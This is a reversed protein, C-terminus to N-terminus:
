AIDWQASIFLNMNQFEKPPSNGGTLSFVSCKSLLQMVGTFLYQYFIM